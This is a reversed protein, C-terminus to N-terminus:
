INNELKQLLKIKTKSSPKEPMTLNIWGSQILPRIHRNFSRTENTLGRLHLVEERKRPTTCYQIIKLEQEEIKNALITTSNRRIHMGRFSDNTLEKSALYPREIGISVWIVLIQKGQFETPEVVPIYSPSIKGKGFNLIEKQIKDIENDNLGKPPLIPKGNEEEIGIIIYGGGWNNFDNAFACISHLVKKPNWGAKFEIRESEVTKGNILKDINIPLAM